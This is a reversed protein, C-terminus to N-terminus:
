TYPTALQGTHKPQPASAGLLLGEEGVEEDIDQWQIRYVAGAIEWSFREKSNARLLRLFWALPM